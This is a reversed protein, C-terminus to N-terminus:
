AEPEYFRCWAHSTVLGRVVDCGFPFRYHACLGCREGNNPSAQYAAEVKSVKTTQANAMGGGAALGGLFGAAILLTQRAAMRRTITASTSPGQRLHLAGGTASEPKTSRSPHQPM